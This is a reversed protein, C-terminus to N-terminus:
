NTYLGANAALLANITGLSRWDEGCNDSYSVILENVPFTNAAAGAWSFKIAPNSLASLNYAKSIIETSGMMLEERDIMISATVM